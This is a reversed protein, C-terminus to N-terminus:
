LPRGCAMAKEHWGSPISCSALRPKLHPTPCRRRTAVGEYTFDRLGHKACPWLKSAVLNLCFMLRGEKCSPTEMQKGAGQSHAVETQRQKEQRAEPYHFSPPRLCTQENSLHPELCNSGFCPSGLLRLDDFYTQKPRRRTRKRGGEISCGEPFLLFQMHRAGCTRSQRQKARSFGFLKAFVYM